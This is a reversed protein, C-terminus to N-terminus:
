ENPQASNEFVHRMSQPSRGILKELTGDVRSFEGNRSARYFGRFGDFIEARVAGTVPAGRKGVLASSSTEVLQEFTDRRRLGGASRADEVRV